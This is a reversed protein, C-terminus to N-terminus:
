EKHIGAAVMVPGAYMHDAGEIEPMYVHVRGSLRQTATVVVTGHATRLRDGERVEGARVREGSTSYFPHRETARLAHGDEFELEVLSSAVYRRLSLVRAASPPGQGGPVLVEDGANLADLRCMSGDAMVML